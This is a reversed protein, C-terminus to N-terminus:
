VAWLLGEGTRVASRRLTVLGAMRADQMMKASLVDTLPVKNGNAEDKTIAAKLQSQM